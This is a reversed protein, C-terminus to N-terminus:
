LTWINYKSSLFKLTAIVFVNLSSFFTMSVSNFSSIIIIDWRNYFILSFYSNYISGFPFEPTWFAWYGFLFKAEPTLLFHSNTSSYVLLCSSLNVSIMSDSLLFFYSHSVIFLAKSFRLVSNLMSVYLQKENNMSEANTFTVVQLIHKYGGLYISLALECDNVFKYLTIFWRLWGVCTRVSTLDPLVNGQWTLEWVGCTEKRFYM